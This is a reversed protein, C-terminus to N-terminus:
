SADIVIDLLSERFEEQHEQNPLVEDMFDSIEPVGDAIIGRNDGYVDITIIEKAHGMLKSVAKPNFENKLLLTCFTSRLDHWQIDPLGNDSLLKKYYKWHFSKSRPKGYTAKDYIDDFNKVNSSLYDKYKAVNKEAYDTFYDRVVKLGAIDDSLVLKHGLINLVIEPGGVRQVPQMMEEVVEPAIEEEGSLICEKIARITKDDLKEEPIDLRKGCQHCFKAELVLKAGCHYCYM